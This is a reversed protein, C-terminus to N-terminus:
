EKKTLRGLGVGPQVQGSREDAPPASGDASQSLLREVVPASLFEERDIVLIHQDWYRGDFYHHDKLCGAESFYRGMGTAYTSLNFELAELYIKRLPWTSFLYGLFLGAAKMLVGTGIVRPSGTMAFYAVGNRLDANYCVVLGIVEDRDRPTVALQLLVGAHFTAVFQEYGPLQGNFRWRWAVKEDTVIAYLRAVDAQSVPRLRVRTASLAPSHASREAANGVYTQNEGPKNALVSV